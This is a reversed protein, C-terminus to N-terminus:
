RAEGCRTPDQGRASTSPQRLPTRSLPANAGRAVDSAATRERCHAWADSLSSFPLGDSTLYSGDFGDIYSVCTRDASVVAAYHDGSVTVHLCDSLDRWAGDAWAYYSPSDEDTVLVVSRETMDGAEVVTDTLYAVEVRGGGGLTQPPVAVPVAWSSSLDQLGALVFRYCDRYSGRIRELCARPDDVLDAVAAAFQAARSTGYSEAAGVAAELAARAHAPSMAEIPALAPGMSDPLPKLRVLADAEELVQDRAVDALTCDGVLNDCANDAIEEFDGTELAYYAPTGRLSDAVFSPTIELASWKGREEFRRADDLLEGLSLKSYGSCECLERRERGVQRLAAALQEDSLSPDHLLASEAVSFLSNVADELSMDRSLPLRVGGQSLVDSDRRECFRLYEDVPLHTRRSGVDVGARYVDMHSVTGLRGEDESGDVIEGTKEVVLLPAGCGPNVDECLKLMLQYGNEDFGMTARQARTTQVDLPVLSEGSRGHDTPYWFATGWSSDGFM